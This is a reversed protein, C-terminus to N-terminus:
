GKAVAARRTPLKRANFVLKGDEVSAHVRCRGEYTGRLIEESLHCGAANSATAM